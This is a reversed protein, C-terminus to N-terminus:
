NTVYKPTIGLRTFFATAGNHYYARKEEPTMDKTEDHIMLRIAHIERMAEMEGALSPDKMYDDLTKM